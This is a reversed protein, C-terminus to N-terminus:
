DIISIDVVIENWRLNKNNINDYTDARTRIKKM